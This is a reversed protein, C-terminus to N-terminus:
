FRVCCHPREIGKDSCRAAPWCAGSAALSLAAHLDVKGRREFYALTSRLVAFNAGNELGAGDAHLSAKRWAEKM